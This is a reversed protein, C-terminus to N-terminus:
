LANTIHDVIENDTESKENLTSSASSVDIDKNDNTEPPWTYNNRIFNVM